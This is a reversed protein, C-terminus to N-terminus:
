IQTIKGLRGGIGDMMARWYVQFVNFSRAPVSVVLLLTMYIVLNMYFILGLGTARRRYQYVGNRFSYFERTIDSSNLKRMFSNSGHTLGKATDELEDFVSMISLTIPIGKELFRATWEVDDGYLYMDRMPLGVKRVDGARCLFGGYYAFPVEIDDVLPVAKRGWGMRRFLKRHLTRVDFGVFSNKRQLIEACVRGDRLPYFAPRLAVACGVHHAAFTGLLYNLSDRKPYNDDDLLLMYPLGTDLAREIGTAFGGASGTNEELPVYILRDTHVQSLDMYESRSARSSGNDVLLIRAIGLELLQEVVKCTYEHRRGYTVVVAVIDDAMDDLIDRRHSM